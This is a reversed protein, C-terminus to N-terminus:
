LVNKIEDVLQKENKMLINIMVRVIASRDIDLVKRLYDLYSINDRTLKFHVSEKM